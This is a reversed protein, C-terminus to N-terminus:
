GQQDTVLFLIDKATGYIQFTFTLIDLHMPRGALNTPVVLPAVGSKSSCLISRLQPISQYVLPMHYLYLSWPRPM